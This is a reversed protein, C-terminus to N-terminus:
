FRDFFHLQSQLHFRRRGGFVVGFVAPCTKQTDPLDSLGKNWLIELFQQM